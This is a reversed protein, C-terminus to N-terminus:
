KDDEKKLVYEKDGKLIIKMGLHDAIKVVDDIFFSDRTMKNTVGQRSIGLIKAIETQTVKRGTNVEYDYLIEKLLKSFIAIVM